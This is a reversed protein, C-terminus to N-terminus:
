FEADPREGFFDRNSKFPIVEKSENKFDKPQYDESDRITNVMPNYYFPITDTPGNRNAAVILEAVNHTSKGAEDQTVGYYEPRFLFMVVNADQEISGSERLDSLMPKKDTRKEVERSLQSLAIVPVDLDKSLNKLGRSISGIEQERTGKTEGQMLQLYDVIVMQIGHKAKLAIAKSRLEQISLASQDDIFLLDLRYLKMVHKIGDLQKQTLEGRQIESPTIIDRTSEYYCMSIIRNMLETGNMELSFICTTHGAQAANKLWAIVTATKGMKPRAALIYLATQWGGTLDDISKLGSTIGTMGKNNMGKEIKEYAEKLVEEGSRTESLQLGHRIKDIAQQSSDLLAFVDYTPDYASRQMLHSAQIISRRMYAELLIFLHDRINVTQNVANTLEVLYFAGGAIELRATKKLQFTVTRVDVSQGNDYLEQIAKFISQHKELYFVEPNTIMEFVVPLCNKEVLAAGLVFQEIEIAQPPLIGM